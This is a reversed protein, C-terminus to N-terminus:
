TPGRGSSRWPRSLNKVHTGRVRRAMVWPARFVRCGALVKVAAPSLPVARPGTKSDRLRMENAEVEVDEWKRTLVDNCRCGTLMLLQIAAAAHVSVKGESMAEGLVRGLRGFEGDALFRERRRARYKGIERCPNSGDAVMGWAEAMTFMTFMRSVVDVALNAMAPTHSLGGHLATMRDRGVETLPLAGLAPLIDREIAVLATKATKPQCRAELHEVRYREALDAM